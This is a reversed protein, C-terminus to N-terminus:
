FIILECTRGDTVEELIYNLLSPATELPGEPAFDGYAAFILLSSVIVECKTTSLLNNTTWFGSADIRAPSEAL